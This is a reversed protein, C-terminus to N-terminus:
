KKNPCVVAWRAAGLIGAKNGLMAARIRTNQMCDPM